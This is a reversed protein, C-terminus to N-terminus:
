QLSGDRGFAPQTDHSPMTGLQALWGQASRSWLQLRPVLANRQRLVGVRLYLARPEPAVPASYFPTGCSPCFAQQRQAGSEATKVYITPKGSLLRFTGPKTPVAVRFATGTLQQCDTCHCLLVQDPEVEAEFRITGCHCQGDVKM